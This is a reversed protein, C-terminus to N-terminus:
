SKGLMGRVAGLVQSLEGAGYKFPLFTLVVYAQCLAVAVVKVALSRRYRRLGEKSLVRKLVEAYLNTTVVGLGHLFGFIVFGLSNGHWAGMICFSVLAAVAMSPLLPLRRSLATQMPFFLYDRLLESLSIHWRSWFDNISRSRYPHNFNEPLVFGVAKALGNVIDCYGSFNIYLYIPFAVLFLVLHLVDPRDLFTSPTAYASVWPGVVFMKLFGLMARNLGRLASVAPVPEGAVLRASQERFAEYRQLPGAIFSWYALNYNFYDLVPVEGVAGDRVEISLCLQRFFIFSLGAVNLALSLRERSVVLDTIWWYQKVVVFGALGLVIWGWFLARRHNSREAVLMLRLVGYHFLLFGALTALSSWSVELVLAVFVVNFMALLVPRWRSLARLSLLVLAVSLFTYMLPNKFSM